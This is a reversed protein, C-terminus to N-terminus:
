TNGQLHLTRLYICFDFIFHSFDGYVYEDGYFVGKSDLYASINQRTESIIM